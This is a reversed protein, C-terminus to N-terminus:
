FIHPTGTCSHVCAATAAVAAAAARAGMTAAALAFVLSAVFAPLVLRLWHLGGGHWRWSCDSVTTAAAAVASSTQPSACGADVGPM